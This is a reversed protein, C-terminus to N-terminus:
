NFLRRLIAIKEHASLTKDLSNKLIYIAFNTASEQSEFVLKTFNDSHGFKSLNFILESDDFINDRAITDGKFSSEAVYEHVFPSNTNRKLITIGYINKTLYNM